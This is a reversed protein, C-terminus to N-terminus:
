PAPLDDSQTPPVDAPADVSAPSRPQSSGDDFRPASTTQGASRPASSSSSKPKSGLLDTTTVDRASQRRKKAGSRERSSHSAKPTAVQRTAAAAGAASNPNVVADGTAATVAREVGVGGAVISGAAATALAIKKGFAMEAAPTAPLHGLVRENFWATAGNWFDAVQGLVGGGAAVGVPFVSAVERPAAAFDRVVARCPGCNKLHLELDGRDGARLEDDVFKSLLPELRRCEAGTGIRDLLGRYVRRGETLSRHVKAYTFGTEAGIEDYSLGDARLLLCRAQDPNLRLLAERGHDVDEMAIVRDPPTEAYDIWGDAMEEFAIESVQKQKRRIMLAENRVVTLLWPLPDEGERIRPPKRLFAEFACQFADEADAASRSYSRAVRLVSSGHRTMLEDLDVHM